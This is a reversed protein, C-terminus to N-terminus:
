IEWDTYRSLTVVKLLYLFTLFFIASGAHSNQILFNIYMYILIYIFYIYCIWNSFHDDSNWNHYLSFSLVKLCLVPLPLLYMVIMTLAFQIWLVSVQISIDNTEVSLLHCPLGLIIHDSIRIRPKIDEMSLQGRKFDWLIYILYYLNFIM